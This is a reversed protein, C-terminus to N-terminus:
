RVITVGGERFVNVMRSGCVLVQAKVFWVYVAPQREINRFVGNWGVEPDFTVFMEDGWRDFIRFEFSLVEFNKGPFVRFEDNIGDDNPSFCNPM